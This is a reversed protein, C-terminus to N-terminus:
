RIMSSYKTATKAPFPPGPSYGASDKINGGSPGTAIAM